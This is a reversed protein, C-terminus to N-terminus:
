SRLPIQWDPPERIPDPPPPYKPLPVEPEHPHGVLGRTLADVAAALNTVAEVRWSAVAPNVYIRWYLAQRGKVAKTAVAAPSLGETRSVAFGHPLVVVLMLGASGFAKDRWTLDPADAPYTRRVYGPPVAVYATGDAVSVFGPPRETANWSVFLDETAKATPDYRDVRCRPPEISDFDLAVLNGPGEPAM